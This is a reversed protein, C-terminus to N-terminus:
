SSMPESLWATSAATRSASRAAPPRTPTPAARGGAAACSRGRRARALRQLAGARQARALLAQEVERQDGVQQAVDARLDRRRLLRRLERRLRRGGPRAVRVRQGARVAQRLAQRRALAREGQGVVGLDAPQARLHQGGAGRASASGVAAHAVRAASAQAPGHAVLRAPRQAVDDVTVAAAAPM